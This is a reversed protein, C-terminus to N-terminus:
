ILFIWRMSLSFWQSNVYYDKGGCFLWILLNCSMTLVLLHNSSFRFHFCVFIFLPKWPNRIWNQSTWGKASSSIRVKRQLFLLRPRSRKHIGNPFWDFKNSICAVNEGLGLILNCIASKYLPNWAELVVFLSLPILPAKLTWWFGNEM